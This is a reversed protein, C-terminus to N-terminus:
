HLVVEGKLGAQGRVNLNEAAVEAAGPTLTVSPESFSVKKAKAEASAAHETKAATTKHHKKKAPDKKAPTNTSPGAVPAAPAPTTMAPAPIPPLANTSTQATAATAAMLGFALGYNKLWYNMKM